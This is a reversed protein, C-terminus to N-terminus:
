CEEPIVPVPVTPVATPPPTAGRLDDIAVPDGVTVSLGALRPLELGAMDVHDTEAGSGEALLPPRVLAVGPVRAVAALVELAAVSKRLPWGRREVSYQPSGFLSVQEDLLDAGDPPLPSLFQVIAQRVAERVSVASAGAVLDLGVSVWIDIYVPRRVFLETTVLRRPALWCAVADVFPDDANAPPPDPDGAPIVMVTVAGPADGPESPSLAPNFAPVVEARGVVVGPTRLALTQFDTANVLRDRHQLYRAVQKEGSSPDEADAGGWTAVPNAVQIGPPLAPGTAIMGPGVNGAQGQTVDYSARLVAGPPPRRGHFGDGFRIVGAEPDLAFVDTPAPPPAPTGPPQRPDPVPVEPGATSLDDIEEWPAPTGDTTVFLSLSGPLVPQQSLTASQDPEGTGAPLLEEAIHARQEVQAANIGVWLLGADAPGPAVVRLWTIVRQSQDSDQLAPPFDLTGDELPDLNTWLSLEAPTSPLTVEFVDPRTPIPVTALTRYAANRQDPNEPLVGDPPLSPVQFLLEALAEPPAAGGPPVQSGGGTPAPVLGLSVTMGALQERAAAIADQYDGTAGRDATRALLAIWLSRDITDNALDVPETGRTSFPTTQYLTLTSPAQGGGTFSAYLQDYYAKVSPDPDQGQKTFAVAEVPLVDLAAATRFPVEGARVEIGADLTITRAPGAPNSFAVLGQAPSAPQLGVGLLSLFKLRNRDPIQNTRYLLSETLFAFLELITVGPDAHNFNTWEPNHVPVRALTADLLQQYNRDDLAPPTIPM